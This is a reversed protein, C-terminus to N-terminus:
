HETAHREKNKFELKNWFNIARHNWDDVYLEIKKLNHTEKMDWMTEQIFWISDGDYRAKNVYANYLYYYDYWVHGLPTQNELLLYLTQNQTLRIQATHIDWMEDWEIESNFLKISKQILDKSEEFNKDTVKLISLSDRKTSIIKNKIDHTLYIKFSM